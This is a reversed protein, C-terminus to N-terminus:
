KFKCREFHWRKMPSQGGTQNCYPCTITPQTRGKLAISRRENVVPDQKNGKKKESILLKTSEKHKKGLMGARLNGRRKKTDIIKKKTADSLTKGKHAESLKRRHEESKVRGKWSPPRADDQINTLPGVDDIKKGYKRILQCELDYAEEDTLDKKVIEIVPFLGRKMLSLIKFTKIRNSTKKTIEYREAEYLHDMHRKNDWKGKGVYFPEHTEPDKYLYVYYM